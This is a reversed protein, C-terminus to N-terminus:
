YERKKDLTQSQIAKQREDRYVHGVSINEVILDYAEETSKFLDNLSKEREFKVVAISNVRM